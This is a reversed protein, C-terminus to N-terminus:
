PDFPDAESALSAFHLVDNLGRSISEQKDVLIDNKFDYIFKVRMSNETLTGTKDFCMVNVAGLNEIVQPQRSIIGLQSLKFAGLAMFSSFAVPIEEPVASMALTLALLLSTILPQNHLYNLLFIVCFGILGFASLSKVFGNVSLQLPTKPPKYNLVLKGIKGLVTRNGTTTIKALCKGSSVTSGQYLINDGATEYKSVPLSEGTIVSENITCDNAQLIIGDAPVRMGEEIMIIDGPVLEEAPLQMEIGDRIVICKPTALEQLAQLARFSKVEQYLSIAAVFIIAALMMLGEGSDGLIFYLSCAIVLMIFMPERVISWLTQLFGHSSEARLTNKGYMRRLDTVERVSLGQISKM